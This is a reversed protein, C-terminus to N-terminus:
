RAGESPGTRPASPLPAASQEAEKNPRVFLGRILPWDVNIFEKGNLQVNIGRFLMNQGRGNNLTPMDQVHMHIHPYDSNGSNGCKGVEQGPTVKDGVKVRISDKQFHALFVYTDQDTRIVVHNGAPNSTDKKGIPNDPLDGVVATIVGTVPSLVSAGWSFFDETAAGTTRFLARQSPGGVKVFDIGYWQGQVGMHDNVNLTDGGQMVFWQGRFPLVCDTALCLTSHAAILGVIIGAKMM